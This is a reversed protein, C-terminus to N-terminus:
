EGEKKELGMITQILQFKVKIGALEENAWRLQAELSKIKEQYEAAARDANKVLADYSEKMSTRGM